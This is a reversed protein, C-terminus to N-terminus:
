YKLNSGITIVRGKDLRGKEHTINHRRLFIHHEGVQVDVAGRVQHQVLIAVSGFELRRLAEIPHKPAVVTILREGPEPHRVIAAIRCAGV